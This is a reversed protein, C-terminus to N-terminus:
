ILKVSRFDKFHSMLVAYFEAYLREITEQRLQGATVADNFHLVMQRIGDTSSSAFAKGYAHGLENIESHNLGELHTHVFLHAQLSVDPPCNKAVAILMLQVFLTRLHTLFLQLDAASLFSDGCMRRFAEGTAEDSHEFAAKLSAACYQQFPIKKKFLM